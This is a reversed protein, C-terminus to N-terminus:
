LPVVSAIMQLVRLQSSPRVNQARAANSDVIISWGRDPFANSRISVVIRYEVQWTQPICKM